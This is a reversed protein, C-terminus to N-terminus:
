YWGGEELSHIPPPPQLVIKNSYFSTDFVDRVSVCMLLPGRVKRSETLDHTSHKNVMTRDVTLWNGGLTRPSTGIRHFGWSGTDRCAEPARRPVIGIRYSGWRGTDRCAEMTWNQVIWWDGVRRLLLLVRGTLSIINHTNHQTTIHTRKVIM